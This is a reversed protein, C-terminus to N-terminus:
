LTTACLHDPGDPEIRVVGFGALDVECPSVVRGHSVLWDTLRVAARAHHEGVVGDRGSLVFEQGMFFALGRSAFGADSRVLGTLALAPFPGGRSWAGIAEGFWGPSMALRAPLWAVAQLGPLDTLALILEALIRVVPLLQGAGTLHAGPSFTLLALDAASFDGALAVTQLATDIQLHAPGGLGRCDFMLGDRMLELHGNRDDRHTVAFAASQQSLAVLDAAAPSQAPDFLMGAIPAGVRRNAWSPDTQQKDAVM